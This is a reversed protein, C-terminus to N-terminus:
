QKIDEDNLVHSRCTVITKANWESLNFRDYFYRDNSNKNYKDFIEDFGDLIFVFSAHERIVDMIEKNIQKMQLAQSIIQKENLENYHKSLSIYIPIITSDNMYSEWLSKELHRCFLSKGSGSKGQVVMVQREYKGNQKKEEERDLFEMMHQHCDYSDDKKNDDNDIYPYNNAQLPIYMELAQSIAVDEIMEQKRSEQLLLAFDICSAPNKDGIIYKKYYEYLLVYVAKGKVKEPTFKCLQEYVFQIMELATNNKIEGESKKFIQPPKLVIIDSHPRYRNAMKQIAKDDIWECIVDNIKTLIEHSAQKLDDDEPNNPEWARLLEYYSHSLKPNEIMSYGELTTYRKLTAQMEVYVDYKPVYLKINHFRHHTRSQKEFFDKDESVILNFKKAEKMVMVATKLNTQDECLITFRGIDFVQNYDGKYDYKIKESLRVEDKVKEPKVVTISYKELEKVLKIIEDSIMATESRTVLDKLSTAHQRIKQAKLKYSSGPTIPYTYQYHNNDKVQILDGNTSISYESNLFMAKTISTVTSQKCDPCRYLTKDSFFSIEKFEENVWVPLRANAALCEINECFGQLNIGPKIEGTETKEDEKKIKHLKEEMQEDGKLEENSKTKKQLCSSIKCNHVCIPINVRIEIYCIIFRM